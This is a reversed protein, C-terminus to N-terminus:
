AKRNGRIEIEGYEADHTETAQEIEVLGRELRKAGWNIETIKHEKTRTRWNKSHSQKSDLHDAFVIELTQSEISLSNTLKREM